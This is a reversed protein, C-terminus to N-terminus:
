KVLGAYATRARDEVVVNLLYNVPRQVALGLPAGM